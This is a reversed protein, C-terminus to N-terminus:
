QPRLFQIGSFTVGVLSGQSWAIDAFFPPETEGGRAGTLWPHISLFRLDLIRIVAESSSENESAQNMRVPFRNFWFYTKLFPIEREWDAVEEDTIKVYTQAAIQTGGFSEGSMEYTAGSDVILKWYWPSFADPLLSTSVSNSARSEVKHQMLERAGLCILPYLVCVGLGIQGIWRRPQGPLSGLVGASFLSMMWFPDVIFILDWAFRHTSLPYFVQTGYSNVLDMVVHLACLGLIILYISRARMGVFLRRGLLFLIGALFPLFLFSHTLARRYLLTAEPGWLTFLIDIDPSMACIMCFPVLLRQKWRQADSLVETKERPILHSVAWGSFAHTLPDM